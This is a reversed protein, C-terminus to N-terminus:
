PRDHVRGPASESLPKRAVMVLSGWIPSPLFRDIWAWPKVIATAVASAYVNRRLWSYYVRAFLLFAIHTYYRWYVIDFGSRRLLNILSGKSYGDRVHGISEHFDRGFWLPFAPTPVSVVAYGGPALVRYAEDVVSADDNIHEIVDLLFVLGQSGSRVPICTGDGLFSGHAFTVPHYRGVDFSIVRSGRFLSVIEATMEGSGCGVELVYCPNTKVVRLAARIAAWRVHSHPEIAGVTNAFIWRVVSLYRRSGRTALMMRRGFPM